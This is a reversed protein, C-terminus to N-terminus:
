RTIFSCFIKSSRCHYVLGQTRSNLPIAATAFPDIACAGSPMRPINFSNDSTATHEQGHSCTSICNFASIKHPFGRTAFAADALPEPYFEGDMQPNCKRPNTPTSPDEYVGPMVEEHCRLPDLNKKALFARGNVKKRCRRSKSALKFKGVSGGLTLKPDADSPRKTRFSFKTVHSRVLIQSQNDHRGNVSSATTTIFLYPVNSHEPAVAEDNIDPIIGARPSSSSQSASPLALFGGKSSNSQRTTAM